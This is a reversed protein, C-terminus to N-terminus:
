NVHEKEREVLFNHLKKYCEEIKWVLHPFDRDMRAIGANVHKVLGTMHEVVVGLERELRDCDRKVFDACSNLPHVKHTRHMQNQYMCSACLPKQDHECYLTYNNNHALCKQPMKHM